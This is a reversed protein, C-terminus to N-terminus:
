AGVTVVIKGKQKGSELLQHAKTIDTFDFRESHVYPRIKGEEVLLAIEKLIKGHRARDEGTIMPVLMLVSDLSIGKVYMTSLDHTGGTAICAISGNYRCAKFSNQLNPGGVTEFIFDFGRGDTYQKSYEEPTTTKYNITFDAGHQKSLAADEDNSVTTHVRAGLAKGLQAAVHGVGGMGGHVLLSSGPKVQLKEVLAEWSTLAVLPLAAAEEFSLNKPMVAALDADVLMYQALAGGPTGAIGGACGYVKDGPSFGSVGPGVKEVVGAFDGHLIAPLPQSFPLQRARVKTDIPNVSTAKVAVLIHGPQLEPVPVEELKFNEPGGNQHLRMAKM